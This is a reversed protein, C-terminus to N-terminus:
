ELAVGRALNEIPHCLYMEQEAKECIPPHMFNRHSLWRVLSRFSSEM